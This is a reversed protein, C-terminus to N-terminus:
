IKIQNICKLYVDQGLELSSLSIGYANCIKLCYSVQASLFDMLGRTRAEARITSQDVVVIVDRIYHRRSEEGVTEQLFQIWLPHFRLQKSKPDPTGFSVQRIDSLWSQLDAQDACWIDKFHLNEQIESIWDREYFIFKAYGMNGPDLFAMLQMLRWSPGDPKPLRLRSIEFSEAISIKLPPKYNFLALPLRRHPNASGLHDVFHTLAEQGHQETFNTMVFCAVSSAILPHGEVIDSIAELQSDYTLLQKGDEDEFSQLIRAVIAKIEASKLESLRMHRFILRYEQGLTAVLLPNRTTIIINRAQPPLSLPINSAKLADIDDIM